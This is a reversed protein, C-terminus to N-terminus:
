RFHKGKRIQVGVQKKLQNRKLWSLGSAMTIGKLHDNEHQIVVALTGDADLTFLKGDLDYATIRVKKARKREFTLKPFSICGEVSNVEENDLSEVIPNIFVYSTSDERKEHWDIDAVFLRLNRGVQPAALGIGRNSMMTLIMDCALETIEQTVDAVPIAPQILIPDPYYRIPLLKPKYIPPSPKTGEVTTTENM